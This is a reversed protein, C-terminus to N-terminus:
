EHWDVDVDNRAALQGQLSNQLEEQFEVKIAQFMGPSLQALADGSKVNLGCVSVESYTDNLHSQLESDSVQVVGAVVAYGRFAKVSAMALFAVNM